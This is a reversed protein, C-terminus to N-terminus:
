EQTTNAADPAKTKNKASKGPATHTDKLFGGAILAEVNVGEVPTWFAGPEGLRASIIRLAMTM